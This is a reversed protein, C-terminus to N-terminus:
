PARMSRLDGPKTRVATTVKPMPIPAVVAMKLM